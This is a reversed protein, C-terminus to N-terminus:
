GPRRRAVFCAYEDDIAGARTLREELYAALDVFAHDAERGRSGAPEDGAAADLAGAAPDLATALARQLLAGGTPRHVLLELEPGLLEALPPAPPGLRRRLEHELDVLRARLREALGAPPAGPPQLLEAIRRAYGLTAATTRGDPPGLWEDGVWLGGPELADALRRALGRRDPARGLWGQTFIVGYAGREVALEHVLRPPGPAGGGSARLALTLRGRVDFAPVLVDVAPVAPLAAVAPELWASPARLVLARGAPPGAAEGALVWTTWDTDPNGTALRDLHRRLPPLDVGHRLGRDPRSHIRLRPAPPPTEGREHEVVRRVPVAPPVRAAPPRARAAGRDDPARRREARRPVAVAVLYDSPLEGTALLAAELLCLLGLLRADRLDAPDFNQVVDYLLHHLLSGGYDVEEVVEFWARLFGPLEDSRVAESPDVALMEAETPVEKYPFAVGEPRSPDRMMWSLRLRRPLRALAHNMAALQERTFQFRRPGVYENFLLLGNPVLSRALAPFALELNEVHHLVSHAIALDYPGGPPPEDDLDVVHYRVRDALGARRAAEEATAVAGDAVDCADISAIEPRGAIARELWGEGCGLVLVRLGARRRRVLRPVVHRHWAWTLWDGDPRGSVRQNLYARVVPSGMWHVRALEDTVAHDGWHAAVKERSM